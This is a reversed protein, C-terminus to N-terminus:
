NVKQISVHSLVDLIKTSTPLDKSYAKASGCAVGTMLAKKFDKNRLYSAVFGALLCDGAGVSNVVNEIQPTAMYINGEQTLLCAGQKGLSVLVNRAGSIQMAKMANILDEDNKIPNAYIEKVEEFNPSILFPHGQLSYILPRSSTDVVTLVKDNVCNLLRKYLVDENNQAISGSLILVDGEELEALALMLKNLATEPITPGSANIETEFHDTIKVNIRTEGNDLKFLRYNLNANSLLGEFMKGTDGAVFGFAFNDQKLIDLMRSVNFGKGGVVTREYNSRNTSGLALHDLYIYYDISPNITVTYIMMLM